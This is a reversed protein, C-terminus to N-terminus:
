AHQTTAWRAFFVLASGLDLVAWTSRDLHVPFVPNLLLAVAGLAISWPGVTGTATWERWILLGAVVFVTVRLLQYYGYPLPALALVLM